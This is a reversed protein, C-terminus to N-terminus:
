ENGQAQPASAAILRLDKSAPAKIEGTLQAGSEVALDTSQICGQIVAENQAHVRDARINGEVRGQCVVVQALIDGRIKGTSSIILYDGRVNGEVSGDIRAKGKFSVDGAISMDM